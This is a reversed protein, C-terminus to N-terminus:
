AEDCRRKRQRLLELQAMLAVCATEVRLPAPGMTMTQFGHRELQDLEYAVLGGEPGIVAVVRDTPEIELQALSRKAGPHAVIKHKASSFYTDLRDQVFPNFLPEILIHPERTHRGQMMGEHLLPRYVAPQLISSSLFPKEVRWTRLLVIRDVGFATIEPLLKRLSKPRPVALVLDIPPRAPRLTDFECRLCVREDDIELVEGVGPSGELMGVRLRQGTVARLVERIHSARPGRLEFCGDQRQDQPELLVLNM